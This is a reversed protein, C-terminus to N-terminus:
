HNIQSFCLKIVQEKYRNFEPTTIIEYPRPRPLNINITAIIRGPNNGMIIVRDALLVAEGAAHTVFLVAFKFRQWFRLLNQEMQLTTHYDLSNFPEDLLLLDVPLIIGRLISVLQQQGSSLQNPYAHLDLKIELENLLSVVKSNREVEDMGQLKLPLTINDMINFWPFLSEKFNQFIYGVKFVPSKRIYGSDPSDLSAILNLLTTKGCGNPGFIIVFEGPKIDLSIASIAKTKKSGSRYNKSINRASLM